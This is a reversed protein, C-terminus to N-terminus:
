MLALEDYMAYESCYKGERFVEWVFPKRLINEKEVEYIQCHQYLNMLTEVKQVNMLNFANLIMYQYSEMEKYLFCCLYNVNSTSIDSSYKYKESGHTKKTGDMTFNGSGGLLIDLQKVDDWMHETRVVAISHNAGWESNISYNTYYQYNYQFHGGTNLWIGKIKQNGGIVSLGIQKCSSITTENLGDNLIDIAFETPVISNNKIVDILNDFGDPFCQNFFISHLPYMTINVKQMDVHRRQYNYTSVLRDIPDRANFLFTNTHQELWKSVSPRFGYM